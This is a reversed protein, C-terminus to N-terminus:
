RDRGCGEWLGLLWEAGGRVWGGAMVASLPQFTTAVGALCRHLWLM